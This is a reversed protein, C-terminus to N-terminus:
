VLELSPDAAEESVTASEWAKDIISAETEWEILGGYLIDPIQSLM